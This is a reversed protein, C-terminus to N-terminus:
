SNEPAKPRLGVVKMARKNLETSIAKKQELTLEEWLVDIGNISVFIRAQMDKRKLFIVEDL